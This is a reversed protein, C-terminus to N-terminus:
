HSPTRSVNRVRRARETRCVHVPEWVQTAGEERRRKGGVPTTGTDGKVHYPYDTYRMAYSYSKKTKASDQEYVQLLPEYFLGLVQFEANACKAGGAALVYVPCPSTQDETFRVNTARKHTRIADCANKFALLACPNSCFSSIYPGNKACGKADDRLEHKELQDANLDGPLAKLVATLDADKPIGRVVLSRMPLPVDIITGKMEMQQRYQGAGSCWSKLIYLHPHVNGRQAGGGGREPRRTRVSRKVILKRGPTRIFVFFNRVMHMSTM